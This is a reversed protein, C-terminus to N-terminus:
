PEKRQMCEPVNQRCIHVVKRYLDLDMGTINRILRAHLVLENEENMDLDGIWQYCANLDHEFVGLLQTNVKLSM